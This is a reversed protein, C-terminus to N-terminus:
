FQTRASVWVVHANYRPAIEGSGLIQSVPTLSSIYRWDDTVHHEFTYGARLSLNDRVAYEGRIGVNYTNALADPLPTSTALPTFATSETVINTRGRSLTTNLGLKLNHRAQWDLRVGASHVTDRSASVWAQAPNTENANFLFYGKQVSRIREYSYFASATLSKQFVYTIDGDALLTDSRLLGFLSRSYRDRAFGGSMSATLGTALDYTAGGKTEQRRRDALHYMRLLGYEISQNQPGQALYQDTHSANWPVYDLYDSGTRKAFTQAIWISGKAFTTQAKARVTQEDTKSVEQYTRTRFDGTYAVSLRTRPTLRYGVEAKAQQFTFSHPLNYRIYRSGGFVIPQPQDQVDNAVYNYLSRPTRNDRDDYTYSAVLDVSKGQRATLTLNGYTRRIEANASTLPLPTRVDLNPNTTYPLFPEDQRQITYAFKATLRMVPTLAIGGTLMAQHASNDPPLSYQGVAFPYGAFAGSPWPIGTSRNYPNPVLMAPVNNHFASFEYSARWQVTKDAFGLSVTAHNSDYEVTQPFFVGVPNLMEQGFTIYQDKLGARHRHDFHLRVEYGTRPTMVYDGGVTQWKVRLDVPAAAGPLSRFLLSSVATQWDSPLTLRGTSVGLFPTKASDSIYRTFSDYSAGVRWKGQVGYFGDVNRVDRGNFSAHGGWYNAKGSDWGPRQSVTADFFGFPGKDALGGYRGFYFSDLSQYGLGGEISSAFALPPAKAPATPAESLDFDQAAAALPWAVGLLLLKRLRQM